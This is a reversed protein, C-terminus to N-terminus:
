RHGEVPLGRFLYIPAVKRLADALWGDDYWGPAVFLSNIVGVPFRVQEAVVLVGKSGAEVLIALVLLGLEFLDQLEQRNVRENHEARDHLVVLMMAPVSLLGHGVVLLGTLCINVHRRVIHHLGLVLADEAREALYTAADLATDTRGAGLTPRRRLHDRIVVVEVVQDAIPDQILPLNNEVSIEVSLYAFLRGNRGLVPLRISREERALGAQRRGGQLRM